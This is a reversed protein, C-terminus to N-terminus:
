PVIEDDVFLFYGNLTPVFGWTSQGLVNISLVRTFYHVGQDSFLFYFFIIGSSILNSETQLGFYIDIFQQLFLTTLLHYFM